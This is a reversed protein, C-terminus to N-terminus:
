DHNGIVHCVIPATAAQPTGQHLESRGNLFRYELTGECFFAKMPHRARDTSNRDVAFVDYTIVAQAPGASGFCRFHVTLRM